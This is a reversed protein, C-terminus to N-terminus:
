SNSDAEYWSGRVFPLPTVKGQKASDGAVIEVETGLALYDYKLYGLAVTRNLRPSFVASTLLGIEKGDTSLFKDGARAQIRDDFQVGALKKAVHGRWHIRAIIEQGIYCGKTFSVAEDLGTELVVRTDDMDIGYRPIGAEIRLVDLAESGVPTAGEDCIAQWIIEVQDTNMFLDFGSEGTHTALIVEVATSRFELKAVRNRELSSASEGFVNEMVQTARVGQISIMSKTATLDTVRFDGATTFRELKNLVTQHAAAETDFLFGNELHLIRSFALLRGQVNPFAATMWSNLELTKVDNTLLGNLFMVAESGSVLIRGRSSLDILGAGGDRVAAYENASDGYSAPLSWGDQEVFTAGLQRHVKALLSEALPSETMSLQELVEAM